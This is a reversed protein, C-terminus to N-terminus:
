SQMESIKLEELTFSENLAEAIDNGINADFFNFWTNLVHKTLSNRYWFVGARANREKDIRFLRTLTKRIKVYTQM